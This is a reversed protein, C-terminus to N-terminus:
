VPIFSGDIHSRYGTVHYMGYEDFDYVKEDLNECPIAKTFGFSYSKGDEEWVAICDTEYMKTDENFIEEGEDVSSAMRYIREIITGSFDYSLYRGGYEKKYRKFSKLSYNM